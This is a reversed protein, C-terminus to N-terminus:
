SFSLFVFNMKLDFTLTLTVPRSKRHIVEFYLQHIKDLNLLILGVTM